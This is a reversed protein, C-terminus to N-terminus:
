TPINILNVLESENLLELSLIEYVIGLQSNCVNVVVVGFLYRTRVTLGWIAYDAADGWQGRIHMIINDVRIM